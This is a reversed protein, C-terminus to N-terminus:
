RCRVKVNLRDIEEEFFSRNYLATLQDHFTVYHIEQRIQNELDKLRM